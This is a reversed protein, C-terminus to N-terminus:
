QNRRMRPHAKFFTWAIEPLNVTSHDPFTHTENKLKYLVVDGTGNPAAWRRVLADPDDSIVIPPSKCRNRRAWLRIGHEASYFGWNPLGNYLVKKDKAGHFHIVSVPPGAVFDNFALLGAWPAVAAFRGPLRAGLHHAMFGGSSTGFVFIRNPDITYDASVSDILRDIFGVDDVRGAWWIEYIGGGNWLQKRKPGYAVANPYVVIFGERDAIPNFGLEEEYRAATNGHGHLAFVLAMPQGERYSPPLHVRYSRTRAGHVLTRAETGGSATQVVGLGIMLSVFLTKM